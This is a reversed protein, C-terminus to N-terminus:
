DPCAIAVILRHENGSLSAKGCVEITILVKNGWRKLCQKGVFSAGDLKPEKRARSPNHNILATLNRSSWAPLRAHHFYRCRSFQQDADPVQWSEGEARNRQSLPM